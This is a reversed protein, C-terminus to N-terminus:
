SYMVDYDAALTIYQEGGSKTIIKSSVKGKRRFMITVGDETFGLDDESDQFIEYVRNLISKGVTYGSGYKSVLNAAVEFRIVMGSHTMDGFSYNDSLPFDYILLFPMDTDQSITLHGVDNALSSVASDGRLVNIVKEVIDM